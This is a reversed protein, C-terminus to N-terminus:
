ADICPLMTGSDEHSTCSEVRSTMDATLRSMTNSECKVHDIMYERVYDFGRNLGNVLILLGGHRALSAIETARCCIGNIRCAQACKLPGCVRM